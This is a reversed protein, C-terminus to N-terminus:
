SRRLARVATVAGVEDVGQTLLVRACRELTAGTTHVDDVLVVRRTRPPRRGPRVDLHRGSLREGRGAGLQHDDRTGDRRLADRTVPLGTRAGLRRALLLAHDYGRSRRRGPHAPVPVLTAGHLLGDPVAAAMAAALVDAAATARRFKLGAVLARAPGEHALPAWATTYAHGAAPCPRGCPSPLGCRACCPGHLWPLARRCGGCLEAGPTRCVLCVPPALLDLASRLLM